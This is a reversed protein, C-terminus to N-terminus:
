EDDGGSSYLIIVMLLMIYYSLLTHLGVSTLFFKNLLCASLWGALSFFGSFCVVM